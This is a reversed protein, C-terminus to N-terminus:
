LIGKRYKSEFNYYDVGYENKLLDIKEKVSMNMLAKTPNSNEKKIDPVTAWATSFFFLSSEISLV